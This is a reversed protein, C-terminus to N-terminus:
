IDEFHNECLVCRSPGHFGRSHLQEWTLVKGKDLLWIFCAIKKPININWLSDIVSNSDESINSVSICDYVKAAIIPRM